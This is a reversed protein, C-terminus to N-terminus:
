LYVGTGDIVTYTHVSYQTQVVCDIGVTESPFVNDFIENWNMKAFIMAVPVTPENAPYVPTAVFAGPGKPDTPDKPPVMDSTSQCDIMNPDDAVARVQESCDLAADISLGQQEFAHVNMLLLKHNGKSHQFKPVLIQRPSGYSNKGTVDHYKNGDSDKAWIGTWTEGGNGDNIAAEEGPYVEEYHTYAAQEFRAQMEGGPQVIIPALSLGGVISTKVVSESIDYYGSVPRYLPSWSSANPFTYGVVKAMTTAGVLKNETLDTTVRVAREVLSYYQESVLTTETDTLLWHALYGLSAAVSVIFAVFVFRGCTVQRSSKSVNNNNATASTSTTTGSNTTSGTSETRGSKVTKDM